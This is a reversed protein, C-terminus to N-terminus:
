DHCNNRNLTVDVARTMLQYRLLPRVVDSIAHEAVHVLRKVWKQSAELHDMLMQHAALLSLSGGCGRADHALHVDVISNNSENTEKHFNDM